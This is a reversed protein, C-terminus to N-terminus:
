SNNQLVKPQPDQNVCQNNWAETQNTSWVLISDTPLSAMVWRSSGLSTSPLRTQGLREKLFSKCTPSAGPPELQGLRASSVAIAYAGWSKNCPKCVDSKFLSDFRNAYKLIVTPLFSYRWDIDSFLLFFLFILLRSSSLHTLSLCSFALSPLPLFLISFMWLCGAGGGWFLVFAEMMIFTIWFIITSFKNKDSSVPFFIQALM